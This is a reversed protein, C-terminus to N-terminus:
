RFLKLRRRPLPTPDPEM